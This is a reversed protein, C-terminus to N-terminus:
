GASVILASGVIIVIDDSFGDFANDFPVIGVAVSLMLASCAVIDYRFRGWIFFIMMAGLVLFSLTQEATM